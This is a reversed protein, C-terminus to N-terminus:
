SEREGERQAGVVGARSAYQEWDRKFFFFLEICTLSHFQQISSVWIKHTQLWKTLLIWLTATGDQLHLSTNTSVNSDLFKAALSSPTLDTLIPIPNPLSDSSWLWWSHHYSRYTITVPTTFLQGSNNISCNRALFMWLWIEEPGILSFSKSFSHSGSTSFISGTINDCCLVTETSAVNTSLESIKYFNRM